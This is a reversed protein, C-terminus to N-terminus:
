STTPILRRLVAAWKSTEERTATAQRPPLHQPTSATAFCDMRTKAPRATASTPWAAPTPKKLHRSTKPPSPSPPPNAACCPPSSHSARTQCTISLLLIHKHAILFLLKHLCASLNHRIDVHINISSGTLCLRPVRPFHLPCPEIEIPRAERIARM